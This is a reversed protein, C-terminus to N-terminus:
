INLLGILVVLNNQKKVTVNPLSHCMYLWGNIVVASFHYEANVM